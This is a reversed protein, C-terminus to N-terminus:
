SKKMCNLICAEAEKGLVRQAITRGKQALEWVDEPADWGSCEDGGMCNIIDDLKDKCAALAARLEANEARAKELLAHNFHDMDRHLAAARLAEDREARLQRVEEAQQSDWKTAYAGTRTLNPDPHTAAVGCTLLQHERLECEVRWPNKDAEARLQDYEVQLDAQRDCFYQARTEVARLREIEALLEPVDAARLATEAQRAYYDCDDLLGGNDEYGAEARLAAAVKGLMGAPLERSEM